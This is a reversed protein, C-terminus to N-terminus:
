GLKNMMLVVYSKWGQKDLERETQDPSCGYSQYDDKGQNKMNLSAASRAKQRYRAETGEQLPSENELGDVGSDDFIGGSDKLKNTSDSTLFHTLLSM